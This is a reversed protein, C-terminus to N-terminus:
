QGRHRHLRDHRLGHRVDTLDLSSSGACFNAYNHVNDTTQMPTIKFSTPLQVPSIRLCPNGVKKRDRVVLADWITLAYWKKSFLM